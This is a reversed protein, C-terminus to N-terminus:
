TVVNGRVENLFVVKAGISQAVCIAGADQKVREKGKYRKNKPSNEKEISTLKFNTEEQKRLVVSANEQKSHSQFGM